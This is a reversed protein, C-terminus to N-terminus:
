ISPDTPTSTNNNRENLPYPYWNRSREPNPDTAGPRGFRRSDEMRFGFFMLEICRQKYIETLISAQDSAGTYAPLAAGVGWVDKSATKTICRNLEAVAGPLDSKRALAEAKILIMEGYVYVPIVSVNTSGFGSGLTNANTSGATFYFGKLRKDNITDPAIAAPLGSYLNKAQCVNVGGFSVFNIPNPTSADYKFSSKKTSDVKAVAALAKNYGDGDAGLMNNYRAQLAFITNKVDLSGVVKATFAASVPNATIAAEASELLKIAQALAQKRDVFPQNDGISVPMQQFYQSLTGLALAQYISAYAQLGSQVGPDGAVKLNNLILNSENITLMGQTWISGVIGNSNLLALGGNEIEYESANGQNLLRLEKTTLGSASFSAYLLAGRDGAYRKQLGSCMGILGDVSGTVQVVSAASPNLYDKKCSTSMILMVALLVVGSIGGKPLMSALSPTDDIFSYKKM